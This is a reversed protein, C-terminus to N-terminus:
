RRCLGETLMKWYYKYNMNGEIGYMRIHGIFSIDGWVMYQKGGKKMCHFLDQYKWLDHWYSPLGDPGNLNFNKEDTFVVTDWNAGNWETM